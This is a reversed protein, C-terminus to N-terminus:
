PSNPGFFPPTHVPHVPRSLSRAPHSSIPRQSTFVMRKAVKPPQTINSVYIVVEGQFRGPIAYDTNETTTESMCSCSHVCMSAFPSGSRGCFVRLVRFLCVPFDPIQRLVLGSSSPSSEPRLSAEALCARARQPAGHGPRVHAPREPRHTPCQLRAAHIQLCRSPSQDRRLGNFPPLFWAPTEM